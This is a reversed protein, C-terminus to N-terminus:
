RQDLRFDDFAIKFDQSKSDRGTVTFKFSHKGAASIVIPGLDYNGFTETPSYEDVPSGIAAGDISL